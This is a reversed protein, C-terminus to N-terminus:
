GGGDVGGDAGGGPTTCEPNTWPQVQDPDIAIIHTRCLASPDNALCAGAADEGEWWRATAAVYIAGSSHVAIPGLDYMQGITQSVFPAAANTLDVVQVASANSVHATSGKLAVDRPSGGLAVEGEVQLGVLDITLLTSDETLVVAKTGDESVALEPLPLPALPLPITAVVRQTPDVGSLDVIDIAPGDEGDLRVVAATTAGLKAISVPMQGPLGIISEASHSDLVGGPTLGYSLLEAGDEGNADWAPVFLRKGEIVDDAVVASQLVYPSVGGIPDVLKTTVAGDPAIFSLGCVLPADAASFPVVSGGEVGVVQAPQIKMAKGPIMTPAGAGMVATSSALPQAPDVDITFMRNINPGCMGTITDGSIDLDVVRCPQYSSVPNAFEGNAGTRPRPNPCVVGADPAEPGADPPHYPPADGGDVQDKGGDTAPPREADDDCSSSFLAILGLVIAIGWEVPEM